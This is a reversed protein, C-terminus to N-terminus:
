KHLLAAIVNVIDLKMLTIRWCSHDASGTGECAVPRGERRLSICGTRDM